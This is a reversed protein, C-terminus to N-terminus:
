PGAGEKSRLANNRVLAAEPPFVLSNHIVSIKDRVIGYQRCLTDQSERSNAVVHRALRLSRRFLWPLKKGTRMTAIVATGPLQRQLSGAHCNAMRGMCLIVDPSHMAAVRNLGPAFWDLGTNFPQLVERKVNPLITAALAGGPRFTLLTTPHGATAFANALLVSQRETGGSRLHDQVVLIKM